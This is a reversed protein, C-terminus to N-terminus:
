PKGGNADRVTIRTWGGVTIQDGERLPMRVGPTVNQGNIQTGNTSGVDLLALDGSAERYLIAHRSSVGHDASLDLEPFIGRRESRRGLLNEAFDLPFIREPAGVPCPNTPDPDLNLTPDVSVVAEWRRASAPFAPAVPAQPVPVAAPPTQPLPPPMQAVFPEPAPVASVVPAPPTTMAAPGSGPTWSTHAVFNYRCVECFMASPNARPTGCDPCVDGGAAAPAVVSAVTSAVIGSGATLKKGCESCYDPDTSQHGNPCSYTAM